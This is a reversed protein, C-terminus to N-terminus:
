NMIQIKFRDIVDVISFILSKIQLYVPERFAVIFHQYINECINIYRCAM